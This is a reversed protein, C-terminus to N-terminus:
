KEEEDTRNSWWSKGYSVLIEEGKKIEQRSRICMRLEGTNTRYDTFVANPKSQVGRYDNTFRAENGFRSADVGVSTGDPFRHLSLDYDSEPRDDCHIEGIYDLILANPPIKKGAFLGCQGHAPHTNETIKRIVVRCPANDASRTGSPSSQLFQKVEKSVSAHYLPRTSYQLNSPWNSVRSHSM